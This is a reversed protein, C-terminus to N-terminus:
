QVREAQHLKGTESTQERAEEMRRRMFLDEDWVRHYYTFGKGGEVTYKVKIDKPNIENNM